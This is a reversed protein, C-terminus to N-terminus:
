QGKLVAKITDADFGRAWLYRWQRAQETANDPLASFKKQWVQRARGIETECLVSDADILLHEAIGKRRLEHLIKQRGYRPQRVHLLAEVYRADSLLGQAELEDLLSQLLADDIEEAALKQALEQRGYERRSLARIAQARLAAVDCPKM